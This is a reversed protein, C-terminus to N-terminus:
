PSRSAEVLRGDEIRVIRDCLEKADDPSHTVLVLARGRLEDRLVDYARRRMSESLASFPEDALISGGPACLARALAAAQQEGGSLRGALRSADVGPLLRECLARALREGDPRGDLIPYMAVNRAVSFWPFLSESYRQPVYGTGPSCPQVVGSSPQELALLLRLATTKGAGNRGLLGVREGSEIHLTVRDLVQRSGNGFSASELAAVIM